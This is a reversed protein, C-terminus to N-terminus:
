LSANLVLHEITDDPCNIDKILGSMKSQYLIYINYWKLLIYCGFPISILNLAFFLDVNILALVRFIDNYRGSCLLLKGGFLSSM